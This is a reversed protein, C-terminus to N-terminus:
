YPGMKYNKKLIWIYYVIEGWRQIVNQLSCHIFEFVRGTPLLRAFCSNKKKEM